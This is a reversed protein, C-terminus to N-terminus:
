KEEQKSILEFIRHLEVAPASIKQVLESSVAQLFGVIQALLESLSPMKSLSEIDKDSLLKGNLLGAFLALKENSKAFEALIKSLSVPDASYAVGTPGVFSDLLQDFDTDKVAIRLLTNKAVKYGSNGLEKIKQRLHTVEEVKLGYNKTIAVFESQQFTDKLSQVLSKKQEKKM